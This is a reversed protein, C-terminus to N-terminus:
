GPRSQSPALQSTESPYHPHPLRGSALESSYKNVGRGLIPHKNPGTELVSASLAGEKTEGAQQVLWDKTWAAIPCLGWWVQIAQKELRLAKPTRKWRDWPRAGLLVSELGGGSMGGGRVASSRSCDKRLNELEEWVQTSRGGHGAFRYYQYDCNDRLQSGEWDGMGLLAGSTSHRAWLVYLVAVIATAHSVSLLRPSHLLPSTSHHTLALM